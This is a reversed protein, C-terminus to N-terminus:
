RLRWVASSRSASRWAALRSMIDMWASAIVLVSYPDPGGWEPPCCCCCREVDDQPGAATLLGAVENFASCLRWGQTSGADADVGDGDYWWQFFFYENLKILIIVYEM